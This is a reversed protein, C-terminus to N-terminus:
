SVKELVEDPIDFNSYVHQVDDHDELTEILALLQRAKDGEVRVTSKPLRTIECSEVSIKKQEISKKVEELTGPDTTVAFKDGERKLDEAGAELVIEFLKDEPAAGADVLIFGKKEFLWAVSGAGAMHGGKKELLNRIEGSTRNRNDTLTEVLLAAGGPGYGEYQIEEYSVGPLDGTGKKIARDINDSPMNAAKACAVATRLRPNSDLHGGGARAAVTIEKILKTFAQGRKADAAAKKHKITSWRSHGSM